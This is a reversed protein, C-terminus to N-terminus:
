RCLCYLFVPVLAEKKAQRDEVKAVEPRGEPEDESTEKQLSSAEDSGKTPESEPSPTEPKRPKTQLRRPLVNKKKTVSPAAFLSSREYRVCLYGFFLLNSFKQQEAELVAM